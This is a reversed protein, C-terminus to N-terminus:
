DSIHTGDTTASQPQGGGSMLRLDWYGGNLAEVSAVISLNTVKQCQGHGNPCAMKTSSSQGATTTWSAELAESKECRTCNQHQRLLFAGNALHADTSDGDAADGSALSEDINYEGHILGFKFADMTHIIVRNDIDM